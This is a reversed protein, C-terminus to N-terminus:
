KLFEFKVQTFSKPRSAFDKPLLIPWQVFQYSTDDVSEKVPIEIWSIPCPLSAGSAVSREHLGHERHSRPLMQLM